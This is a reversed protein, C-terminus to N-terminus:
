DSRAHIPGKWKILGGLRMAIDVLPPIDPLDQEGWIGLEGSHFSRRDVGVAQLAVCVFALRRMAVQTCWFTSLVDESLSVM